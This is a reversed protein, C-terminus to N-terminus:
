TRVLRKDAGALRIVRCMAALRSPIRDDSLKGALEDLSLNSTIILGGTMAMYRGDIIEYLTQFAFETDRGIGLDDIILVRVGVLSDVAELEGSANEASRVRRFIQSPKLVAIDNPYKVADRGLAVALHTKGVGTPGHIYLNAIKPFGEHIVPKAIFTKLTFTDYARQGSLAVIWEDRLNTAYISNSSKRHRQEAAINECM